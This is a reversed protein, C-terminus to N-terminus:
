IRVGTSDGARARRRPLHLEPELHDELALSAGGIVTAILAVDQVSRTSHRSGCAGSSILGILSVGSRGVRCGSCAASTFDSQRGAANPGSIWRTVTTSVWM